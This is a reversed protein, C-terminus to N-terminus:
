ADRELDAARRPMELHTLEIVSGEIHRTPGILTYEIADNVVAAVYEGSERPWRRESAQKIDFECREGYPLAHCPAPHQIWIKSSVPHDGSPKGAYIVFWHAREAPAVSPREMVGPLPLRGARVIGEPLQKTVQRGAM